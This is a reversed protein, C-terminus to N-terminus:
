SGAVVGACVQQAGAGIKRDGGGGDVVDVTGHRCNASRVVVAQDTVDRHHEMDLSESEIERQARGAVGVETHWRMHESAAIEDVRDLIESPRPGSDPEFPAIRDNDTHVIM